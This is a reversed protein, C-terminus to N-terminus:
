KSNVAPPVPEVGGASAARAHDDVAARIHEDLFDFARRERPGGTKDVLVALRRMDSRIEEAPLFPTRTALIAAEVVAHRARHFGFFDRITGRKVVTAVLRARPQAVDIDRIEFAFWRCADALIWGDVAEARVLPPRVELRDVAARALLEVDDTVHFVGQRARLLNALTTSGQYPRLVLQTIADDVIPGMPSINVSGDANITTVIGELIM